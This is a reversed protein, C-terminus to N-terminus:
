ARATTQVLPPFKWVALALSVVALSVDIYSGPPAGWGGGEDGDMLRLGVGPRYIGTELYTPSSSLKKGRTFYRGPPTHKGSNQRRPERGGVTIDETDGRAYLCRTLMERSGEHGLCLKWLLSM